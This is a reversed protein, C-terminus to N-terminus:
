SNCKEYEYLAGEALELEQLAIDVKHLAEVYLPDIDNIDKPFHDRKISDWKQWEDYARWYRQEIAQKENERKEREKKLAFCKQAMARRQRTNTKGDISLGLAFDTNLKKIADGFPLAFYEQVFTISDGNAGCGFCNYGRTGDYVKMSATKENHFPCKCFGRSNVPIGYYSFVDKTSLREKIEKALFTYNNM